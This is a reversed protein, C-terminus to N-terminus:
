HKSWHGAGDGHKSRSKAAPKLVNEYYRAQQGELGPKHEDAKAEGAVSRGNREARATLAGPRKVDHKIDPQNPGPKYSM